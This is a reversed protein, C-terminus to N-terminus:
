ISLLGFSDAVATALAVVAIATLVLGTALGILEFLYASRAITSCSSSRVLSRCVASNGGSSFFGSIVRGVIVIVVLVVVLGLVQALRIM